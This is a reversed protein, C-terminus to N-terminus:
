DRSGLFEVVGEGTPADVNPDDHARHRADVSTEGLDQEGMTRPMDNGEVDTVTLEVWRHGRIRTDGVRPPTDTRSRSEQREIRSMRTASRDKM